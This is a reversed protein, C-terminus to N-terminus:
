IPNDKINFRGLDEHRNVTDNLVLYLQVVKDGYDLVKYYDSLASEKSYLGRYKNYNGLYDISGRYTSLFMETLQEPEYDEGDNATVVDVDPDYKSLLAILDKVKM